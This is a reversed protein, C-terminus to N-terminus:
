RCSSLHTFLESKVSICMATLERKVYALEILQCGLHSSSSVKVQFTSWTVTTIKTCVDRDDSAHTMLRTM